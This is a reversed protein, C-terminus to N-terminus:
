QGPDMPNPGMPNPDMPNPDMPNFYHVIFLSCYEMQSVAEIYLHTLCIRQYPDKRTLILGDSRRYRDKRM